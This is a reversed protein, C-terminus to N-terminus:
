FLKFEMASMRLTKDVYKKKNINKIIANNKECKDLNKLFNFYNLSNCCINIGFIKIFDKIRNFIECRIIFYALVNTYKNIDVTGKKDLNTISFIKSAQFKCWEKEISLYHVFNKYKNRSLFYCNLINAWIETYAEFTNVRISNINYRKHYLDIIFSNDNMSKDCHFLHILEHITVKMVEEKRWIDITNTLPSCCGNNIHGYNLGQDIDDNITKKFETLYYNINIDGIHKNLLHIVYSIVLIINQIFSQISKENHYINITIINNNIKFIVNYNNNLLKINDNIEDSIYTNNFHLHNNNDNQNTKIIEYHNQIGNLYNYLSKLENFGYTSTKFNNEIYKKINLSDKTFM